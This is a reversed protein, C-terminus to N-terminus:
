CEAKAFEIGNMGYILIPYNWGFRKIEELYDWKQLYSQDIGIPNLSM